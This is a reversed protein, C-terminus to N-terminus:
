KLIFVKVPRKGWRLADSRTEFFLDIRKGKIASGIDMARAYGYGDVYLRTGLPITKPDVAVTGITPWIGTYTKNGTHTYGTSSMELTKLFQLEKGGRSVSQRQGIAVIQKQPEKLIVKDVLNRAKEKGNELVIELVRKELGNKGEQLIRKDGKLIDSDEVRELTYPIEKEEIVQTKEVRIINIEHVVSETLGPVVRDDSDLAINSERLVDGVTLAASKVVTTKEGEVLTVPKARYVTVVMEDEVPADLDPITKDFEGLVKKQEELLAGIDQAFTTVEEVEGDVLTLHKEQFLVFQFILLFATIVVGAIISKQLKM